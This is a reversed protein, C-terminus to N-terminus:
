DTGCGHRRLTRVMADQKKETVAEVTLSQSRRTTAVEYRNLKSIRKEELDYQSVDTKILTLSLQKNEINTTM